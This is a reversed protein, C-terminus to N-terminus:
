KQSNFSVEYLEDGYHLTAFLVFSMFILFFLFLFGISNRISKYFVQLLNAILNSFHPLYRLLRILIAATMYAEIHIRNIQIEIFHVLEKFIDTKTVSFCKSIQSIFM